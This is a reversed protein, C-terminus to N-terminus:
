TEADLTDCLLHIDAHSLNRDCPAKRFFTPRDTIKRKDPKFMPVPTVAGMTPVVLM